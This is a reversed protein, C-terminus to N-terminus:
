VNLVSAVCQEFDYETGVIFEAYLLDVYELSNIKSSYEVNHKCIEVILRAIDLEDKRLDERFLEAQYPTIYERLHERIQEETVTLRIKCKKYGLLFKKTYFVETEFTNGHEM